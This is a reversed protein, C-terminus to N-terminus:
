NKNITFWIEPDAKQTFIISRPNIPTNCSLTFRSCFIDVMEKLGSVTWDPNSGTSNYFILGLKDGTKSFSLELDDNSVGATLYLNGDHSLNKKQISLKLVFTNNAISYNLTMVVDKVAVNPQKDNFNIKKCSQVMLDYVAKVKPSLESPSLEWVKTSENFYSALDDVGLLKFEPNEVSILSSKDASLDMTQFKKGAIEQVIQFRIGTQTVIFPAVVSENAGVGVKQITFTHNNNYTFSYISNSFNLTLNPPNNSFMLLDIADLDSFYQSWNTTNSLKNLLIPTGRKKGKLFIQNATVKMVIFEYDGGNGIGDNLPDSFAHLVTNYTNFTLVPGNDGIVDWQSEATKYINSTTLANKAAVTVNSNADFKVLMTYGSSTSDAFYYMEWGNEASLLVTKADNIVMEMRKAASYPFLDAEEKLCGSMIVALISLALITYKNKNM